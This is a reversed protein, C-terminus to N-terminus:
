AAKTEQSEPCAITLLCSLAYLSTLQGLFRRFVTTSQGSSAEWQLSEVDDCLWALRGRELVRAQDRLQEVVPGMERVYRADQPGDRMVREGLDALRSAWGPADPVLPKSAKADPKVRDM